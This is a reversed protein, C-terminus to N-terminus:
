LPLATDEEGPRSGGEVVRLANKKLGELEDQGIFEAQSWVRIFKGMDGVGSTRRSKDLRMEVIDAGDGRKMLVVQDSWYPLKEGKVSGSKNTESIVLFSANGRSFRRSLMAWLGFETLGELYPFGSMEVLSNISDIVTLVPKDSELDISSSVEVTLTKPTQGRGMQFIHLNDFVEEHDPHTRMWNNFRIALGDMDDEAALYCVQWDGSAAAACAAGMAFLTKGVGRPAAVTVMGYGGGCEDDIHSIGSPWTVLPAPEVVRPDVRENEGTDDLAEVMGLYAVM